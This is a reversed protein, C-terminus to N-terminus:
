KRLAKAGSYVLYAGASVLLGATSLFGFKRFPIHNMKPNYANNLAYAHTLRSVALAAGYAAVLKKPLPSNTELLLMLLLGTPTYEGFNQGVRQIATLYEDPKGDATVSNFKIGTDIRYLAVRTQLLAYVISLGGAAVTTYPADGLSM